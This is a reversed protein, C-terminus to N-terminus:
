VIGCDRWRQKWSGSSHTRTTPLLKRRMSGRRSCERDARSKKRVCRKRLSLGCPALVCSERSLQADTLFTRALVRRGSSPTCPGCVEPLVAGEYQRVQKMVWSLECHFPSM